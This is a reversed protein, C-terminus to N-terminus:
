VPSDGGLILSPNWGLLMILGRFRRRCRLDENDMYKGNLGYNVM